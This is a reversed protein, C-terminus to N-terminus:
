FLEGLLKHSVQFMYIIDIRLFLLAFEGCNKM